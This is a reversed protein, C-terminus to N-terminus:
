VRAVSALGKDIIGLLPGVATKRHIGALASTEIPDGMVLQM